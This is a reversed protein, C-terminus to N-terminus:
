DQRGEIALLLLIAAIGLRKDLITQQNSFIIDFKHIFINFRQVVKALTQGNSTQIHYTQPIIKLIFRRIFALFSTDEKISAFVQENTDLIEWFDRFMSHFGKRRISGLKERTRSDFVDYAASFDIINRAQIHLAEQTMERDTYVRIDERLRFLKQRSYLLLNGETDMIRFAGGIAFVDRKAVFENRQLKETLM